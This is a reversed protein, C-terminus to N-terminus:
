KWIKMVNIMQQQMENEKLRKLVNRNQGYNLLPNGNLSFCEKWRGVKQHCKGENCPSLKIALSHKM